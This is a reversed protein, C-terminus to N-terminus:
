HFPIHLWAVFFVDTVRNFYAIFSVAQSEQLDFEIITYILEKIRLYNEIYM